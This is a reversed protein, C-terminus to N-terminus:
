VASIAETAYDLGSSVGTSQGTVFMKSSDPSVAVAYADDEGNGPGNYTNSWQPNLTQQTDALTSYNTMFTGTDFVNSGDPAVALGRDVACCGGQAQPHGGNANYGLLIGGPGGPSFDTGAIFVRTGDASVGIGAVATGVDAAARQGWITTGTSAAYALTAFGFKDTAVAASGTVFVRTSDPSITVAQGQDDGNAPGNYRRRWQTGGTGPAYSITVYNAGTGDATSSGTVVVRSGDPAVALAQARDAGHAPGDHRRVWARAGTVANYEITAYDDGTAAGGYSSGTVFVRTGDPSVGIASAQDDGNGPGNYRRAWVVKGTAANIAETAYDLGSVSGPSSGTVFVLSGAPSIAICCAQDDGNGLGNYRSTWVTAGTAANIAQTAYDL